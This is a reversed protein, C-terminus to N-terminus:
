RSEKESASRRKGAGEERQDYNESPIYAARSTYVVYKCRKLFQIDTRVTALGRIAFACCDVTIPGNKACKDAGHNRGLFFMHLLMMEM